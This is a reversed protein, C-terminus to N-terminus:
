RAERAYPQAVEKDGERKVVGCQVGTLSMAFVQGTAVVMVKVSHGSSVYEVVVPIAHSGKGEWVTKGEVETQTRAGEVGAYRDTTGPIPPQPGFVGLQQAKAQTESSKVEESATAKSRM